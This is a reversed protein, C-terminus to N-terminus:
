DSGWAANSREAFSVRWLSRATATAVRSQMATEVNVSSRPFSTVTVGYREQRHGIRFDAWYFWIFSQGGGDRDDGM